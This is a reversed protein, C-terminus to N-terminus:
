TVLFLQAKSYIYNISVLSFKARSFDIQFKLLLLSTLM